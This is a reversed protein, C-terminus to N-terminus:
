GPLQRALVNIPPDGPRASGVRRGLGNHQIFYDSVRIVGIGGM